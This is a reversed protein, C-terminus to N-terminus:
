FKMKLSALIQRDVEVTDGFEYHHPELLNLGTLGVEMKDKFFKKAIHIDLKYYAPIDTLTYTTNDIVKISGVYYFKTDIYDPLYKGKMSIRAGVNVKHEPDTWEWEDNKDDVNLYSYNFYTKVWHFPSYELSTEVGHVKASNGNDLTTSFPVLDDINSTIKDIDNYFLELDFHLKKDLLTGRYGLEYANISERELDPNGIVVPVFPLISAYYNFFGFAHYARAFTARLHNDESLHYLATQRTSWDSGTYDNQAWELGSYYTLKDTITIADQGFVRLIRDHYWNTPDALLYLSGENRRFNSGWVFNHREFPKFNHQFELDYQTYIDDHPNTTDILDKDSYNRFFQIFFSSDESFVQNYKLQQYDYRLLGNIYNDETFGIDGVETGTLFELNKDESITYRSRWSITNMREGDIIDRGDNDGLGRSNDREYSLRYDLKGISDGVRGYYQQTSHDGATVKTLAGKTKEPDKTIINIIGNFANYGYLVSNPGRMIEIREIDELLIPSNKWFVGQSQPNFITRGDVLVQLKEPYKDNFGRVTVGAYNGSIQFVDVGPQNRLLDWINVYGSHAIDDATIVSIAAPADTIPQPLRTPLTVIPIEEFLLLESSSVSEQAQAFAAPTFLVLSILYATMIIYKKTISGM